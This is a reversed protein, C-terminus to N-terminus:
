TLDFLLFNSGQNAAIALLKEEDIAAGDGTHLLIGNIVIVGGVVQVWAHRDPDITYQLMQGQELLGGYLEIDQHIMLSGDRGTQSALLTLQNPIQQGSFSRQEYGPELAAREPYIWIQLLHAVKDSSNFERHTVGAGATMRQLEGARIVSGNGMSDKHEIEGDIVYTLIEMNEHPHTDFGEGGEIWDENLVRLARFKMHQRDFYSAFSFSHFSKLWGQNTYGREKSKRVTIM